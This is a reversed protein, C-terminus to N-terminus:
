NDEDNLIIKIIKFEKPYQKKFLGLLSKPNGSETIQKSFFKYFDKSLNEEPQPLKTLTFLPITLINGKAFNVDQKSYFIIVGKEFTNIINRSEVDKLNGKKYLFSQCFSYILGFQPFKVLVVLCKEIQQPSLNEKNQDVFEDTLRFKDDINITKDQLVKLYSNLDAIKKNKPANKKIEGKKFQFKKLFSNIEGKAKTHKSNKLLRSAEEFNGIRIFTSIYIPYFIEWLLCTKRTELFTLFAQQEKEIKVGINSNKM